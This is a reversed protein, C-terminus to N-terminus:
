PGAVQGRNLEGTAEGLMLEELELPTLALELRFRV